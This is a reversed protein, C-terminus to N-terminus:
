NSQEPIRRIGEAWIKKVREYSNYFADKVERPAVAVMVRATDIVYPALRSETVAKPPEKAPFAMAGLVLVAAVLVGQVLGFLGGLVRNLWSLQAAKIAKDLFFGAISGLVCVAGFILLFGLLNSVQASGLYDQLREGAVGYFWLGCFLAVIVTAFGIATRAFGNRVGNIASAVLVLGLIIDLWHM